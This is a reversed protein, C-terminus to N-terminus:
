MQSTWEKLEMVLIKFLVPWNEVKMFFRLYLQPSFLEVLVILSVNIAASFFFCVSFSLIPRSLQLVKACAVEWRKVRLLVSFHHLTSHSCSAQIWFITYSHMSWCFNQDNLSRFKQQNLHVMCLASVRSLYQRQFAKFVIESGSGNDCPERACRFSYQQIAVWQWQYYLIHDM